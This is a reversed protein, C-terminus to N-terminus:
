NPQVSDIGKHPLFLGMGYLKKDGLGQQQLRISDEISLGAIMLKRTTIFKGDFAHRVVRGSMMKKVRIDQAQLKALMSDIFRPDDESGDTDVYRAFLTTLKSLSRISTKGLKILHGDIELSQGCLQQCDSLRQSPMRIVLRTRRSPWLLDTSPNQPRNWGNSSEAVHIQHIGALPEEAIWPAQSLLSDGLAQGHDLPLSKCEIAFVLDVVDDPVQYSEADDENEQWYM